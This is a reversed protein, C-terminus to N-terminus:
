SKALRLLEKEIAVVLFSCAGLHPHLLDWIKLLQIGCEFDLILRRLDSDKTAKLATYTPHRQSKAVSPSQSAM